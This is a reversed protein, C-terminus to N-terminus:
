MVTYDLNSVQSIRFYGLPYNEPNSSNVINGKVTAPQTEFPGGGSGTQQLLISMYNFFEETVGYLNFKVEDGSALDDARYTGFIANGNFFKDSIVNRVVGRESNGVFFYYNEEEAPDTFFARLEIRDGLFGGDDKQEVYELPVSSVLHTTATYVEENYIVELIYDMNAVPIFNSFYYGSEAYTFNYVIGNEAKIKVVANEVAPIQNDFFPATTSLKVYSDANSGSAIDVNINAEIVLRPPADNLDVEIVDECSFLLMAGILLLLIRKM